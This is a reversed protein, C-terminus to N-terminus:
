WVLRVFEARDEHQMCSLMAGLLSDCLGTIGFCEVNPLVLSIHVCVSGWM